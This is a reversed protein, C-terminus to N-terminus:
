NQKVGGHSFNCHHRVLLFVLTRIEEKRGNERESTDLVSVTKLESEVGM